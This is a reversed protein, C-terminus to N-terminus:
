RSIKPSPPLAQTGFRASHIKRLLAIKDALVDDKVSVTEGFVMWLPQSPTSKPWLPQGGGNPDGTRIFNLWYDRMAKGPNGAALSAPTRGGWQLLPTEGAHFTGPQTARRDPDVYTVYYLYAPQRRSVSSVMAASSFVYRMDGFM